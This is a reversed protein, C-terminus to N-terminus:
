TGAEGMARHVKKQRQTRRVMFSMHCSVGVESLRFIFNEFCIKRDEKYEEKGEELGTIQISTKAGTCDVQRSAPM